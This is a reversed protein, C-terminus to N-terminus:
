SMFIIALALETPRGWDEVWPMTPVPALEANHTHQCERRFRDLRAKGRMEAPESGIQVSNAHGCYTRFHQVEDRGFGQAVRPVLEANHAFGNWDVLACLIWIFGFGGGSGGGRSVSGLRKRTRQSLGSLPFM